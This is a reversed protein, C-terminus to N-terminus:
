RVCQPRRFEAVPLRCQTTIFQAEIKCDLTPTKSTSSNKMTCSLARKTMSTNCGRSCCVGATAATDKLLSTPLEDKGVGVGIKNDGLTTGAAVSVMANTTGVGGRGMEGGEGKVQTPVQPSEYRRTSGLEKARIGVHLAGKAGHQTRVLPVPHGEM